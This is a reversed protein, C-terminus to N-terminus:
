EMVLGEFSTLWLNFKAFVLLFSVVLCLSGFTWLINPQTKNINIKHLFRSLFSSFLCFINFFKCLKITLAVGFIFRFVSLSVSLISAESGFTTSRTKGVNEAYKQM